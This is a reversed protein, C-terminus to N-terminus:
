SRVEGLLQRLCRRSGRQAGALAGRRRRSLGGAGATGAAASVVELDAESVSLEGTLHRGLAKIPDRALYAELEDATRYTAEDGEEHGRFRYTKAEILTPGDGARARAIAEGASEWVALADLGDVVVGPCTTGSRGARSM